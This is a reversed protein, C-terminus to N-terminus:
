PSVPKIPEPTLQYWNWGWYSDPMDVIKWGDAQKKLLATENTHWGRSFPDSSSHTVTVLVIAEDGNIDVVGVRLSSQSVDVQNTLFDQRFQEYAPKNELDALYSYARQYDKQHVALAYNHVVAEPSDGPLYAQEDKRVFFLVLSIVVLIGIAALIGILFRDQKM